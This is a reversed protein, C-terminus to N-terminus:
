RIIEAGPPPSYKKFFNKDPLPPNKKFNKIETTFRVAGSVFDTKLPVVLETDSLDFDMNM